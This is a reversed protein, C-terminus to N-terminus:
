IYNVPPPDTIFNLNQIKKFIRKLLNRALILYLVVVPTLFVYFNLHEKEIVSVFMVFLMKLYPHPKLLPRNKNNKKM